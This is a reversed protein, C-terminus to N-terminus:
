AVTVQQHLVRVRARDSKGAVGRGAAGVDVFEPAGAVAALPQLVVTVMGAGSEGAGPIGIRATWLM